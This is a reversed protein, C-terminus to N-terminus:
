SPTARAPTAWLSPTTTPAPFSWHSTWPSRKGMPFPWLPASRRSPSAARPRTIAAPSRAEDDATIDLEDDTSVTTAYVLGNLVTNVAAATGQVTLAATGDTGGVVSIGSETPLTLTGTAVTLGVTLVTDSPGSDGVTIANENATSFTLPSGPLVSQADPVNVSPTGIAIAVSDAAQNQQSALTGADDVTVQLTDSGGADTAPAYSLGDLATNIDAAIGRITMATAGYPGATIELGDETALTLAGSAVSLGVTLQTDSPGADGVVIANENEQSFVLATNVTTTQAGPVNLSPGLLSIVM